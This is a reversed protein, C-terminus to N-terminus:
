IPDCIRLNVIFRLTSVWSFKNFTYIPAPRSTPSQPLCKLPVKAGSLMSVPIVLTCANSLRSLYLQTFFYLCLKKHAKFINFYIFYQSFKKSDCYCIYGLTKIHFKNSHMLYLIRNRRTEAAYTRGALSPTLVSRRHTSGVLSRPRAPRRHRGPWTRPSCGPRGSSRSGTWRCAAAM